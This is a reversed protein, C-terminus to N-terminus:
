PLVPLTALADPPFAQALKAYALVKEHASRPADHRQTYWVMHSSFSGHVHLAEALPLLGQRDPTGLMWDEVWCGVNHPHTLMLDLPTDPGAGGKSLPRAETRPARWPSSAKPRELSLLSLSAVIAIAELLETVRHGSTTTDGKTFPSFPAFRGAIPYPHARPDVIPGAAKVEEVLADIASRALDLITANTAACPKGPAPRIEWLLGQQDPRTRLEGFALHREDYPTDKFGAETLISKLTFVAPWVEWGAPTKDMAVASDDKWVYVRRTGWALDVPGQTPWTDPKGKKSADWAPLEPTFLTARPEVWPTDGYLGRLWSAACSPTPTAHQFLVDNPQFPM